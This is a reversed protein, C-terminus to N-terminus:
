RPSAVAVRGSGAAGSACTTSNWDHLVYTWDNANSVDTNATTYSDNLTTVGTAKYAIGPMFDKVSRGLGKGGALGYYAAFYYVGPSLTLSSSVGM